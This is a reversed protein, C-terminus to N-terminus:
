GRGDRAREPLLRLDLRGTSGLGPRYYVGGPPPTVVAGPEESPPEYVPDGTEPDVTPEPREWTRLGRPMPASPRSGPRRVQGQPTAQGTSRRDLDGQRLVTSPDPQGPQQPQGALAEEGEEEGPKAQAPPRPVLLGVIRGPEEYMAPAPPAADGQQYARLMAQTLLKNELIHPNVEPFALQPDIRFAEAYAEVARGQQEWREYLAGIQYWAWAHQPQIELVRRYLRLAERLEGGQHQLLALNFVASAKDPALEVAKRYAEEAEGPQNALVLLNGLDNYVAPDQPRETVLRRQAEIAKGLNPPVAALAAVVAVALCALALGSIWVTRKRVMM